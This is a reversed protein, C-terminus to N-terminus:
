RWACAPAASRRLQAEVLRSRAADSAGGSAAAGAGGARRERVLPEVGGHQRAAGAALRAARREWLLGYNPFLVAEDVGLEALKALRAAPEWYDRPLVEDYRELPPLGARGRRHNEGIEAAAAPSRCRPWASRGVAGACARRAPRTM